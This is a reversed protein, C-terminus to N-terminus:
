ILKQSYSDKGYKNLTNENYPSCDDPIENITIATLVLEIASGNDVCVEAAGDTVYARM